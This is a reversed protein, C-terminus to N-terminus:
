LVQADGEPIESPEAVWDYTFNRPCLCVISSVESYYPSCYGEQLWTPEAYPVKSIEGIVRGRLISEEGQISGICLRQYQPKELM